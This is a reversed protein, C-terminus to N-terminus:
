HLGDTDGASPAMEGTARILVFGDQDFEEIRVFEDPHWISIHDYITTDGDIVASGRRLSDTAPIDETGCTLCRVRM